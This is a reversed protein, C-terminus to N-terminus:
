ENSMVAILKWQGRRKEWVDLFRHKEIIQEGGGKPTLVLDVAGREFAMNGSVKIQEGTIRLNRDYKQFTTTVSSEWFALAASGSETPIGREMSVFDDWFVAMVGNVDGVNFARAFDSIRKSIAAEDAAVDGHFERGAGPQVLGALGGIASTVMACVLLLSKM